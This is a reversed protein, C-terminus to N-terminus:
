DDVLCELFHKLAEEDAFYRAATYTGGDGPAYQVTNGDISVETTGGYCPLLRDDQSYKLREEALLAELTDAEVRFIDKPEDSYPFEVKFFITM